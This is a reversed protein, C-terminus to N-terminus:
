QKTRYFIHDGILGVLDMSRNWSPNVYNTHYHTSGETLGRYKDHKYIGIAVDVARHWSDAHTPNDSKGDCYWSFQCKNRIIKGKWTKAQKVVGCVTNPYRSSQVRNLVVDSVAYQGALSEGRAEFYVNQALCYIEEYDEETAVAGTPLLGVVLTLAKLM